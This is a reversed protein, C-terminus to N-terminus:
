IESFSEATDFEVKGWPDELYVAKEELETKHRVFMWQENKREEPIYVPEYEEKFFEFLLKIATYTKGIEADGIIFVINNDKLIREIEEYNEPKVYLEEIERYEIRQSGIKELFELVELKRNFEEQELLYFDASEYPERAITKIKQSELEKYAEPTLLIFTQEVSKKYKEEYWKKYSRLRNLSLHAM